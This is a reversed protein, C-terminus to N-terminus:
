SKLSPLQFQTTCLNRAANYSFIMSIDLEHRGHFFTFLDCNLLCSSRWCICRSASTLADSSNDIITCRYVGLFVLIMTRAECDHM